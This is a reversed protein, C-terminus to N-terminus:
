MAKRYQARNGEIPGGVHPWRIGRVIMSVLGDTVGFQDALDKQRAGNARRQRMMVIQEDALKRGPAGARGRAVMDAVNSARTDFRLHSPNCCAPNDCSHCTDLEPLRREGTTFSLALEHAPRRRDHWYFIGYGDQDADGRWEWCEGEGAIDVNRWFRSVSVADALTPHPHNNVHRNRALAIPEGAM